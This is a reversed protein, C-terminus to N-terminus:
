ELKVNVKIGLFIILEQICRTSNGGLYKRPTIEKSIALGTSVFVKSAGDIKPIQAAEEFVPVRIKEFLM